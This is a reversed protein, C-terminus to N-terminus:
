QEKLKNLEDFNDSEVFLRYHGHETQVILNKPLMRRLAKKVKSLGEGLEKAIMTPTGIGEKVIELIKVELANADALWGDGLYEWHGADFKLAIDSEQMLRGTVFLRAANEHRARNLVMLTDVGGSLGVSGSIADLPDNLAESKRTHHVLLIAVGFQDVLKRYPQVGDYDSEYGVQKTQPKLMKMTDIIILRPNQVSKCWQSLQEIGGNDVRNIKGGVAFDIRNRVNEFDFYSLRNKLTRENDELACYLVDGGKLVPVKGLFFGGSAVAQVLELMLWSKGLKPKGALIIVGEYILDQIFCQPMELEKAQIEEISIFTSNSSKQLQSIKESFVKVSEFDQTKIAKDIENKYFNILLLRRYNAFHYSNKIPSDWIIKILIDLIKDDFKFFMKCNQELYDVVWFMEPKGNTIFYNKAIVEFIIQNQEILFHEKALEGISEPLNFLCGLINREMSSVADYNM